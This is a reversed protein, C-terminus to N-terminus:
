RLRVQLPHRLRLVFDRLYANWEAFTGIKGKSWAAGWYYVYAQGPRYTGVALVHGDAGGRLSKKEQAPFLKVEAREFPLASVAGVFIRGYEGRPNETPDAYSIYGEQACTAVEGEPEHLVIGAAIPSPQELGEYSVATRNLYDGSDLSILRTETVSKGGCAVLPKYVLRVSFRLPGNDLIEYTDYCYPYHITDGSMLAATGGGLTPGVKYSDMGYGHDVHISVSRNLRAAAAPDTAQLRRIQARTEPNLETAYRAEVVPRSTNNKTWLDYGYAREGSAQLAPGYARFAAVENEWAMDDKREPYHRGCVLTDAPQADGLTIRYVAKGHPAVTARFLLKGDHTQQCVLANGAVDTVRFSAGGAASLKKQLRSLPIEVVEGTRAMSTTNKLTVKVAPQKESALAHGASLLVCGILAHFFNMM